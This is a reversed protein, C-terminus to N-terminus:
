NALAGLSAASGPPGKAFRVNYREMFGPLFANAPELDSSGALRLEKTLRDQLTSWLREIRGKAQPSYAAISEIGLEAMVRQVQSMPMQGALQEELTPQKPSCLITHRDHYISM